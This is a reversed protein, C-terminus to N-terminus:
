TISSQTDDWSKGEQTSKYTKIQWLRSSPSVGSSDRSTRGAKTEWVVKQNQSVSTQEAQQSFNGINAYYSPFFYLQFDNFQTGKRRQKKLGMPTHRRSKSILYYVLHNGHGVLIWALNKSFNVYDDWIRESELRYLFM